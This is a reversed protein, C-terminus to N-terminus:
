GAALINSNDPLCFSSSFGEPIALVKSVSAVSAALKMPNFDVYVRQTFGPDTHGLWAAVTAADEGNDFM